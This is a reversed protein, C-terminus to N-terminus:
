FIPNLAPLGHPQGEFVGGWPARADSRGDNVAYLGGDCCGPAATCAGLLQLVAGAAASVAGLLLAAGLLQPVTCSGGAATCCGATATVVSVARRRSPRSVMKRIERRLPTSKREALEGHQRGLGQKGGGFISRCQVSQGKLLVLVAEAEPKHMQYGTGVTAGSCECSVWCGRFWMWPSSRQHPLPSVARRACGFAAATTQSRWRQVVLARSHVYHCLHTNSCRLRVLLRECRGSPSCLKCLVAAARPRRSLRERPKVHQAEVALLQM